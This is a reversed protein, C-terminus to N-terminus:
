ATLGVDAPRRVAAIIISQLINQFARLNRRARRDEVNVLM